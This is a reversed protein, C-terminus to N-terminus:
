DKQTLTNCLIERIRRLDEPLFRVRFRHSMPALCRAVGALDPPVPPAEKLEERQGARREVLCALHMMLGVRTDAPLEVGLEAALAEAARGAEPFLTHPNAFVFDAAVGEALTQAIQEASGQETLIAEPEGPRGHSEVLTALRDQGGQSLIEATSLFPVGRIGPNVPGVVALPMRGQLLTNFTREWDGGTPISTALVEISLGRSRM